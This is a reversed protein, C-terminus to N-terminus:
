AAPASQMLGRMAKSLAIQIEADSPDRIGCVRLQASLRELLLARKEIPLPAATAMVIQLQRDNLKLPM